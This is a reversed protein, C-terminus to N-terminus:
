KGKKRAKPLPQCQERELLTTKREIGWRYGTLAGNVGIVRHCPVLVAIRNQACAHAVARSARPTGLSAALASYSTTTGPALELLARWVREQFATGQIDLPLLASKGLDVVQVVQRVITRFDERARVLDANPLRNRLDTVLLDPDDGLAVACIGRETAAVLIAGLSCTSTAFQVLRGPAGNRLANPTMNSRRRIHEYFRGASGFGASYAAELSTKAFRLEVEARRGLVATRYSKPTIGLARIFVRHAHSVSLGVHLAIARFNVSQADNELLECMKRVRTSNSDLERPRCRQCARFGALEALHPDAYFKVNKLHPRRAPCSPRCYIGTTTVAYVFTAQKDRM